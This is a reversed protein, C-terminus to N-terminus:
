SLRWPYVCQFSRWRCSSTCFLEHSSTLTTGLINSQCSIETCHLFVEVIFVCVHLSFSNLLKVWDSWDEVVDHQNWDVEECIQSWDEVHPQCKKRSKSKKNGSSVTQWANPDVTRGQSDPLLGARAEPKVEAMPPSLPADVVRLALSVNSWKEEM